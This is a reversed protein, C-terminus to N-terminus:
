PKVMCCVVCSYEDKDLTLARLSQSDRWRSEAYACFLLQGAVCAHRALATMMFKELNDVQIRMLPSKQKLPAKISHMQHALGRCRSSLIDEMSVHIFGVSADLFRLAEVLHSGSTAGASSELHMLYTYVHHETFRMPSAGENM